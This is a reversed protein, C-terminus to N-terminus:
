DDDKGDDREALYDDTTRTRPVTGLAMPQQDTFHAIVRCEECMRLRQLAADDGAFMPHNALRELTREVSSKAGFPKGCSVCEFPEEEKLLAPGRAAAEFSIRPTLTIVKEPCTARCLGCQICAQETFRLMPADPNDSLADTPCAGVCALCLTCGDTDITVAGFPAGDPMAVADVPKPANEHLHALAMQGLARRGAVPLFSAAVTANLPTLAYLLDSLAEPDREEVIAVRGAGYGLGDLLADVYAVEGALGDRREAPAPGALILIKEAGWAITGSLLDFGLQTVENVAVPLVRAPLGRAFRSALSIAQEGERTDHFLIVPATGGADAFQRLLTRLRQALTATPPLAYSAAGTPCVSACSGCGACILPDIAVHDGDPTIASTPCQDLCRTCGTIANRSHACLAEDFAIHIHKEFEGVLDTADLLAGAVAAPNGPDPRLYGDLLEDGSLLPAGGSLDLIIDFDLTVGDRATGFGLASSSSPHASAHDHLTVKFAGIAGTLNTVRGRLIPMRTVLPPPADGPPILVLTPDLRGVLRGAAEIAVDGHGYVLVRGESRVTMTRAPPADIQAAAILAAIKATAQDGEASWGAAERINVYRAAGAHGAEDVVEDFLPAEQTCCITCGDPGEAAARVSDLEARCLQRHIRLEQGCARGLAAADLKMTGECDCVLLKKGTANM